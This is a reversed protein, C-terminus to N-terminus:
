EFRGKNYVFKIGFVIKNIKFFNCKSFQTIQKMPTYSLEWEKKNQLTIREQIKNSQLL